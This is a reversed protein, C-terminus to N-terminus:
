KGNSTRKLSYIGRNRRAFIEPARRLHVIVNADTGKGPIPVGKALLAAHIDRIHMPKGCEELIERVAAQIQNGSGTVQVPSASPRMVERKGNSAAAEIVILRQVLELKQNLQERRALLPELDRAVQEQEQLIGAEWHRLDEIQVM